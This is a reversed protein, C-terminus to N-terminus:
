EVTFTNSNLDRPENSGVKISQRIRYTGPAELAQTQWTEGPEVEVDFTRTYIAKCFESWVTEWQGGERQQVRFLTRSGCSPLKAQAFRTGESNLTVSPVEGTAYTSQTTRLTLEKIGGSNGTHSDCGTSGFLVLLFTISVLRPLSKKM